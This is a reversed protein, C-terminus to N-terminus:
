TQLRRCTLAIADDSSLSVAEKGPLQRVDDSDLEARLWRVRQAPHPSQGNVSGKPAPSPFLEERPLRVGARGAQHQVHPHGAQGPELQLLPQHGPPASHGDDEDRAVDVDRLADLGHFAPRDIQEGLRTM